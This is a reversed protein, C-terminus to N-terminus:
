VNMTMERLSYRLIRYEAPVRFPDCVMNIRRYNLLSAISPLSCLLQRPM